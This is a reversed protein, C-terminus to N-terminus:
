VGLQAAALAAFKEDIYKKTDAIYVIQTKGCNSWVNNTGRLLNLQQPTLQITYPNTLPYVIQVPSANLIEAAVEQSTFRADYIHIAKALTRISKDHGASSFISYHSSYIGTTVATPVDYERKTVVNPIGAPSVQYKDIKSGDFVMYGHTITLEGTAWDPSGGYVTEPLEATITEAEYPEYATAVTGAEIQPSVITDVNTGSNVYIRFSYYANKEITAIVFTNTDDLKKRYSFDETPTDQSVYCDLYMFVGSNAINGSITYTGAPIFTRNGVSKQSLFITVAATSTGNIAIKGNGADSITLGNKTYPLAPKDKCSLINKGTRTAEASNWGSIARENDPSANGSGAQVPEIRSILQVAPRAAANTVHVLNAPDLDDVIISDSVGGLRDDLKEFNINLVEVNVRDGSSPLTLNLNPTSTAM